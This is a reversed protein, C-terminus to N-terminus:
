SQKKGKLRMNYCVLLRWSFSHIDVGPFPAHSSEQDTESCAHPRELSTRTRSLRHSNLVHVVVQYFCCNNM